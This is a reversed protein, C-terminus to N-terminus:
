NSYSITKENGNLFLLRENEFLGSSSEKLCGVLIARGESMEQICAGQKLKSKVSSARAVSMSLLVKYYNLHRSRTSSSDNRSANATRQCIRGRRPGRPVGQSADIVVDLVDVVVEVLIEACDDIIKNLGHINTLNRPDQPVAALAVVKQTLIRLRAPSNM